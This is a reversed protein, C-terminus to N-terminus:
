MAIIIIKCKAFVSIEMDSFYLDCYDMDGFDIESFYKSDYFRM